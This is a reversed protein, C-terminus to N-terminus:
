LITPHHLQTTNHTHSEWAQTLQQGKEGEENKLHLDWGFYYSLFNYHQCM